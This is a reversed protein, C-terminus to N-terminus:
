GGPRQFGLWDREPAENGVASSLWGIEDMLNDSRLFFLNVIEKKEQKGMLIDNPLFLIYDQETKAEGRWADM